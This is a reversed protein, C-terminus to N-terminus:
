HGEVVGTTPRSAPQQEFAFFQDLERDIKLNVDLVIHIPKDGGEVAVKACGLTLLGTALICITIAQRFRLM